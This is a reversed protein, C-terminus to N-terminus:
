RTRRAAPARHSLCHAPPEKEGGSPLVRLLPNCAARAAPCPAGLVEVIDGNRLLKAINKADREDTKVRENPKRETKSPSMVVCNVELHRLRRALVFGSPGAEYCLNLEKFEAGLKRALARLAREAALNSGGCEGHYTAASRSSAWTYAIAISDNVAM